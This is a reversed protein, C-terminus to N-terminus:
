QLPKENDTQTDRSNLRLKSLLSSIEFVTFLIYFVFFNIVFHILFIKSSALVSKAWIIYILLATASFLLRVATAGMFYKPFDLGGKEIGKNFIFFSLITIAANYLYAFWVHPHLLTPVVFQCILTIVGIFIIYTILRQPFM